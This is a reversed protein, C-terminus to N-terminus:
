CSFSIFLKILLSYISDKFGYKEKLKMVRELVNKNVIVPYKRENMESIANGRTFNNLVVYLEDIDM